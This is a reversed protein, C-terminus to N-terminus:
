FPLDEDMAAIGGSTDVPKQEVEDRKVTRGILQVREAVIETVDRENGGKDIWTRARLRGEIYILDGKKAYKGVIEALRDWAVVRHWETEDAGKSKKLTTAVSFSAVATGSATYKVEPDKGVRGLITARNVSSM